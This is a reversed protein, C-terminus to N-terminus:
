LVAMTSYQTVKGRRKWPSVIRGGESRMKFTVNESLDKEQGM